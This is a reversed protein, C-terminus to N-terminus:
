DVHILGFELRRKEVTRTEDLMRPQRVLDNGREFVLKEVPDADVGVMGVATRRASGFCTRGLHRRTAIQNQVIKSM